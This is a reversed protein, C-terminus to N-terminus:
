FLTTSAKQQEEAKWFARCRRGECERVTGEERENMASFDDEDFIM